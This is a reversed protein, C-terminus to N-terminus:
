IVCLGDTSLVEVQQVRVSPQLMVEDTVKSAVDESIAKIKVKVDAILLNLQNKVFELRDMQYERDELAAVRYGLRLGGLCCILWFCDIKAWCLCCHSMLPSLWMWLIMWRLRQIARLWILRWKFLCSLHHREGRRRRRLTSPTWSTRSKKQLRSPGSQTSSLSQKWQQSRSVSRRPWSVCRDSHGGLHLFTPPESVLPPACVHVGVPSCCLVLYVAAVPVWPCPFLIPLLLFATCLLAAASRKDRTGSGM